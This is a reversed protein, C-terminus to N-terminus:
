RANKSIWRFQWESLLSREERRDQMRLFGSFSGNQFFLDNRGDIKGYRKYENWFLCNRRAEAGKANKSTWIAM